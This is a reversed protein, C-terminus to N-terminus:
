VIADLIMSIVSLSEGLPVPDHHKPDDWQEQARHILRVPLMAGCPLDNSMFMDQMRSSPM